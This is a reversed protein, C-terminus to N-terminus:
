NPQTHGQTYSIPLHAIKEHQLIPSPTLSRPRLLNDYLPPPTPSRSSIPSPTTDLDTNNQAFTSKMALEETTFVTTWPANEGAEKTMKSLKNVISNYSKRFHSILAENSWRELRARKWLSQEMQITWREQMGKRGLDLEDDTFATSWPPQLVVDKRMACLKKYISKWNTALGQDALDKCSVGDLVAKQWLLREKEVTWIMRTSHRHRYLIKSTANRTVAFVDLDRATFAETWPPHKSVEKKMRWLKCAATQVNISLNCAADKCPIGDVVVQKWLARETEVKWLKRTRCELEEESFVETWPPKSGAQQKMRLLKNYITNTAKHFYSAAQEETEGELMVIRWLYRENEVTWDVKTTPLSCLQAPTFARTWEEDSVVDRVRKQEGQQREIEELTYHPFAEQLQVPSAKDLSLRFLRIKEDTTWSLM